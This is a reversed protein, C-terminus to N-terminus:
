FRWGLTLDGSIVPKDESISMVPHAYVSLDATFNDRKWGIGATPAAPAPLEIQTALSSSMELPAWLGGRWTLGNDAQYEAGFHLTEFNLTYGGYDGWFKQWGAALLIRDTAQWAAELNLKAPLRTHYTLERTGNADTRTQRTTLTTDIDTWSAGLTLRDDFRYSASAGLSLATAHVSRAVWGSGGAEVGCTETKCDIYDLNVGLSLGTGGSPAVGLAVRNVLTKSDIKGDYDGTMGPLLYRLFVSRMDDEALFGSSRAHVRNYRAFGISAEVGLSDPLPLPLTLGAFTFPRLTGDVQRTVSIMPRDIGALLSPNYFIALPDDATATGTGGMAVHRAGTGFITDSGEAHFTQAQAAPAFAMSAMGLGVMGLGQALAAIVRKM